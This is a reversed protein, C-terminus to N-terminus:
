READTHLGLSELESYGAIGNSYASAICNRVGEGHSESQLHQLLWLHAPTVQVEPFVVQTDQQKIVIRRWNTM